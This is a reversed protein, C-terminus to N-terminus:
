YLNFLATIRVHIVVWSCVCTFFPCSSQIDVTHTELVFVDLPSQLLDDCYMFWSSCYLSCHGFLLEEWPFPFRWMGKAVFYLSAKSSWHFPKTWFCGGSNTQLSKKNWNGLILPQRKLDIWLFVECGDYFFSHHSWLSACRPPGAAPSASGEGSSLVWCCVPDASHEAAAGQTTSSGAGQHLVQLLLVPPAPSQAILHSWWVVETGGSHIHLWELPSWVERLVWCPRLSLIFPFLHLEALEIRSYFTTRWFELCASVLLWPCCQGCCLQASLSQAACFRKVGLLASSRLAVWQALVGLARGPLVCWILHKSWHPQLGQQLLAAAGSCGCCPAAGRQQSPAAATCSLQARCGMALFTESLFCM